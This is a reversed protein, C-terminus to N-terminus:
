ADHSKRYNERFLDHSRKVTDTLIRRPMMGAYKESLRDVARMLLGNWNGADILAGCASCAIWEGLSRLEPMGPSKDMPFDRCIFHRTPNPTSCFDCIPEDSARLETM